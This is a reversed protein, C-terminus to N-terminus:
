RITFFHQDLYQLRAAAEEAHASEPFERLLAAYLDRSRKLDRFPSEAELLRATVFAAEDMRKGEPYRRGYESLLDIGLGVEGKASAALAADVLVDDIPVASVALLQRHWALYGDLDGQAVAARALGVVARDSWPTAAGVNRRWYKGAAEADGTRAYLAAIRDNLEPNGERYGKLYEAIAAHEKGLAVLKEAWEFRGAEFSEPAAEGGGATQRQVAAAFDAEELVVVQVSEIRSAGSANDQQQFDLAWTGLKLAKFTFFTRGDKVTRAKFTMSDNQRDAFGLFLFGVGDLGIEIEDGVRAYVARIKKAPSVGSPAAAPTVSAAPAAKAVATTSPPPPAAASAAPAAAAPRPATAREAPPAPPVPAPLAIPTGPSAAAPRGVIGMESPGPSSPDAVPPLPLAPADAPANGLRGLAVLYSDMDYLDAAREAAPGLGACSVLALAAAVALLVTVRNRM